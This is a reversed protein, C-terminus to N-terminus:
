YSEFSLREKMERYKPEGLLYEVTDGRLRFCAPPGISNLKASLSQMLSLLIEDCRVIDDGVNSCLVSSIENETRKQFKRILKFAISRTISYFRKCVDKLLNVDSDTYTLISEMVKRPMGLLTPSDDKIDDFWPKAEWAKLTAEALEVERKLEDDSVEIAEEHSNCSEEDSDVLEVTHYEGWDLSKDSDVFYCSKLSSIHELCNIAAESVAEVSSDQLKVLTSLFDAEFSAVNDETAEKSIRIFFMALNTHFTDDINSRKLLEVLRLVVEPYVVQLPVFSSDVEILKRLLVSCNSLINKQNDLPMKVIRVLHEHVKAKLILDFHDKSIIVLLRLSADIIDLDSSCLLQVIRPTVGEAIMEQVQESMEDSLITGLSLLAERDIKSNHRWLFMRSLKSVIGANIIMTQHTETAHVFMNRLIRTAEIRRKDHMSEDYPDDWLLVSALVPIATEGNTQLIQNTETCGIESISRVINLCDIIIWEKDWGIDDSQNHRAEQNYFEELLQIIPQFFDFLDSSSGNIEEQDIPLGIEDRLGLM